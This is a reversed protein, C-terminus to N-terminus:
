TELESFSKRSYLFNKLTETEQFILFNRKRFFLVNRLILALFNWKGFIYFSDQSSITTIKDIRFTINGSIYLIREPNGNGSIYFCNEKSFNYSTKEPRRKGLTYSIKEPHVSFDSKWREFYFCNKGLYIKKKKKKKKSSQSFIANPLKM